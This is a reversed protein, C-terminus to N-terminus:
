DGVTKKKYTRRKRNGHGKTSRAATLKTGGEKKPGRRNGVRAASSAAGNPQAIAEAGLASTANGDTV